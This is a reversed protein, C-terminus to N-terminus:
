MDLYGKMVAYIALGAVSKIGLKEFINKRHTVVTTLSISLKAAVEKNIYGEVLLKAVEIERPSLVEKRNESGKCHTGGHANKYLNKIAMEIESESGTINIRNFGQLVNSNNENQIMVITKRHRAEFFAGNQIAISASVFIHFFDEPKSKAIDDFNFCVKCACFPLVRDLITKLGLGVLASPTLIVIIPLPKNM